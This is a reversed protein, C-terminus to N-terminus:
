RRRTLGQLVVEVPSRKKEGDAGAIGERVQRVESALSGVGEGVRGVNSAMDTLGRGVSKAGDKTPMPVGLVKKRSNRSALAAGGALGALGAGAAVLPV